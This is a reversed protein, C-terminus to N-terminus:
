HYGIIHQTGKEGKDTGNIVLSVFRDTAIVVSRHKRFGHQNDNLKKQKIHLKITYPRKITTSSPSDYKIVFM